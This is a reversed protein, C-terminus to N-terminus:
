ALWAIGGSPLTSVRVTQQGAADVLYLGIEGAFAVWKGDPSWTPIPTDEGEHTLRRLDTGDPRVSWIDWPIGHAEAIGFGPPTWGTLSPTSSAGPGGVASFVIRAGDPSFNPSRIYAFGQGALLPRPDDGPADAIRLGAPQSNADVATYVLYKGDPSTAPELADKVLVSPPSGDLACRVIAVSEGTPQTVPGIPQRLTALVAQGDATWSPTEFSAGSEPHSRLLRPRTGAPDMLYLDSGGFDQRNSPAVYLTYAVQTRDHALSPSAAYSGIPYRTLPEVRRSALDFAQLNGNQVILLKGSAPSAVVTPLITPGFPASSAVLTSPPAGSPATPARSCGVALGSAALALGGLVARRPLERPANRAAGGPFGRIL